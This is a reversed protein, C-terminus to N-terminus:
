SRCGVRGCVPAQCYAREFVMGRAALADVHPTIMEERGYCGFQPRLDDAAIFLVNYRSKKAPAEDAGMLPVALIAGLLVRIVNQRVM